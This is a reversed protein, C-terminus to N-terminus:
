DDELAEEWVALEMKLKKNKAMARYGRTLKKQFEKQEQALKEQQQDLERKVTEEIFKSIKGNGITDRLRQYTSEQLSISLTRTMIFIKIIIIIKAKKSRALAAFCKSGFINKNTVVIINRRVQKEFLLLPYLSQFYEYFILSFFFYVDIRKVLVSFIDIIATGKRRVEELFFFILCV